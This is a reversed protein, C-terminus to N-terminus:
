PHEAQLMDAVEAMCAEIERYLAEKKEPSVPHGDQEQQVDLFTSLSQILPEKEFLVMYSSLKRFCSRIKALDNLQAAHEIMEKLVGLKQLFLMASRTAM